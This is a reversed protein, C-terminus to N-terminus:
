AKRWGNFITLIQPAPRAFEPRGARGRLDPSGAALSARSSVGTGRRGTVLAYDRAAQADGVPSSMYYHGATHAIDGQVLCALYRALKRAVDLDGSDPYPALQEAYTPERSM